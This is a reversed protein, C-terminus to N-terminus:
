ITKPSHPTLHPCSQTNVRRLYKYECIIIAFWWCAAHSINVGRRWRISLPSNLGIPWYCTQYLRQFNRIMKREDSGSSKGTKLWQLWILFLSSTYLRMPRVCFFIWLTKFALGDHWSCSWFSLYSYNCLKINFYDYFCFYCCKIMVFKQLSIMFSFPFSFNVPFDYCGFNCFIIWLISPFLVMHEIPNQWRPRVMKLAM